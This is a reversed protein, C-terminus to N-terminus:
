SSVPSAAANYSLGCLPVYPVFSRDPRKYRIHRKTSRRGHMLGIIQLIVLNKVLRRGRENADGSATMSRLEKMAVTLRVFWKRDPAPISM